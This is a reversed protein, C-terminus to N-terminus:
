ILSLEVELLHEDTKILQLYHENEKFFAEQVTYNKNIDWDVANIWDSFWKWKVYFHNKSYFGFLVKCLGHGTNRQVLMYPRYKLAIFIFFNIIIARIYRVLISSQHEWWFHYFNDSWFIWPGLISHKCRYFKTVLVICVEGKYFTRKM